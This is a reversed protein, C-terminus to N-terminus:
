KHIDLPSCNKGNVFESGKNSLSQDEAQVPSSWEARSKVYAQRPKLPAVVKRKKQEQEGSPHKTENEKNVSPPQAMAPLWTSPYGNLRQATRAVLGSYQSM